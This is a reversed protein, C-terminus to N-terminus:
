AETHLIKLDVNLFAFCAARGSLEVGLPAAQHLLGAAFYAEADLEAGLAVGAEQAIPAQAFVLTVAGHQHALVVAEQLGPPLLLLGLRELLPHFMAVANFAGLAFQDSAM